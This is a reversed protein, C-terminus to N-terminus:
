PLVSCIMPSGYCHHGFRARRHVIPATEGRSRSIPKVEFMERAEKGKLFALLGRTEATDGSKVVAFPYTVPDHSGPPFTGAIM